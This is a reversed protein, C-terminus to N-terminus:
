QFPGLTLLYGSTTPVRRQTQRGLRFFHKFAWFSLKTPNKKRGMVDLLFTIGRGTKAEVCLSGKLSGQWVNCRGSRCSQM